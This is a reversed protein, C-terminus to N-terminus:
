SLPPSRCLLGLPEYWLDEYGPNRHGFKQPPGDRSFFPRRFRKLSRVLPLWISGLAGTPVHDTVGTGTGSLVLRNPYLPSTLTQLGEGVKM